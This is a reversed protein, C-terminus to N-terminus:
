SSMTFIGSIAPVRTLVLTLLRQSGVAVSNMGVSICWIAEQLDQYILQQPIPSYAARGLGKLMPLASAEAPEWPKWTGM